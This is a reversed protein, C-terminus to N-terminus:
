RTASGTLLSLFNRLIAATAGWVVDGDLEFFYIPREQAGIAWREEHFVGDALLEALPVYLIAEVEDPSAVLEPRQALEGVFPVIYSSSSITQLHDLEGIIEVTGPDLGVEEHAERVATHRLDADAPERSGGPFSVEGRHARLTRARRTLVVMAEDGEPYIPALVASPRTQTIDVAL